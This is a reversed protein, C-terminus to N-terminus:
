KISFPFKVPMGQKTQPFSMSEVVRQVCKGVDTGKFKSSRVSATNVEGSPQIRFKVFMSGSLDNRNTDRACRDVRGQYKGITNKVM